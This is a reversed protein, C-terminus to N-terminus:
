ADTSGESEDGVFTDPFVPRGSWGSNYNNVTGHEAVGNFFFPGDWLIFFDFLLEWGHFTM